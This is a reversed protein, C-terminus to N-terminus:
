AIPRRHLLLVNFPLLCVDLNSAESQKAKFELKM